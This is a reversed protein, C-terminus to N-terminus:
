VVAGSADTPVSVKLTIYAFKLSGSRPRTNLELTCNGTSSTPANFADSAAETVHLNVNLKRRQAIYYAAAYLWTEFPRHTM